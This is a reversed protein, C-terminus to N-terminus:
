WEERPPFMDSYSLGEIRMYTDLDKQSMMYKNKCKRRHRFLFSIIRKWM